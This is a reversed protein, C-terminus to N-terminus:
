NLVKESGHAYLIRKPHFSLLRQWDIKEPSDNEYAELYEYRSLDGVFCDGDDLVLCISDKSHSPTYIIEGNIGIQKLFKRSEGCTIVTALTDNIPTYSLRDRAFIKDSFHIYGQQVDMVLLKVGKEMLESILGMHDPHYHTALIWTVDQIGISNERLAKYFSYLTGAYDTDVLLNGTRGQILFTNTRGYNLRIM